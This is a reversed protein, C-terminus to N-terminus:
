SKMKASKKDGLFRSLLRRAQVPGSNPLRHAAIVQACQESTCGYVKQMHARLAPTEREYYERQADRDSPARVSVRYLMELTKTIGSNEVSTLAQSPAEQVAAMVHTM